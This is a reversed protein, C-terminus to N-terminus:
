RTLTNVFINRVEEQTRLLEAQLDQHETELIRNVIRETAQRAHEATPLEPRARGTVLRIAHDATRYLLTAERLREFISRELLQARQLAELRELTNGAVLNAQTLMLYSALFDIDYFGGRALKFSGPYRNSKELRGRMELVAVSFGPRFAAEAIQRWVLPLLSAAVDKRGAVFRLKSYTLAEWPQAEEALYKEVQMASVVLDGEGGHPRLRADIAFLPGEKTYASLAHVLREADLRAAEEDAEPARVFLLDADSAIDFEETGLRGLAFVALTQEGQEIRLASRIAEDALQSNQKLSLFASRPSLVDQAALAFSARRFRKRLIALSENRERALGDLAFLRAHDAPTPQDGVRAIEDLSRILSPNRVLIDALYDSTEFLTLAQSITAPNELLAGYQEAVGMISGLFRHLNRRGHLSLDASCIARRAGPSDSEIRRMLQDFSLERAGIYYSDVAAEAGGRERQKQSHIMREYISAVRGMRERLSRMLGAASAAGGRSVARALVQLEAPASPLRHLQQGRQLQLRHEVTRLFEYAVSLERFDPSSLHGKDNLKQLSFLTGCARLWPEEGGYVRQLCQALFEIDRIGGRDLKVDITAAEKRTALSRRRHESIKRRSNVATEVAAFNVHTVYVRPQLARIFERALAFDGASHRAKILAQLEWDHASHTYYDLAHGLAVAPEGEHGQPRLRLDIRFVAGETTTRSLIETMLQAQRVFYERLSLEGAVAEAGDYLYLLDVDSSYNLENGGLKGLSLVTFRSKNEITPSPYRRRMEGESHRLAEQILVDALASIEATTEALTAIGLLDRLVIRVYERKKFRALLLSVDKEASHARFRVLSALLDELELSRELDKHARLSHLLYPNHILTEGLWYSHGFVLLVYHLLVHDSDLLAICQDGTLAVFRELLSLAQGPDPTASLLPLAAAFMGAPLQAQLYTLEQRARMEDHFASLDFEQVPKTNIREGVCNLIAFTL